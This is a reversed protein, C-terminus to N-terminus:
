QLTALLEKLKDVDMNEYFEGNVQVVPATGCHGLCEVEELSYLGDASIEGPKVGLNQKIYDVIEQKGLLYCSLTRCVCIHYKGKPQLNYMTYFTAVEYVKSAFTGIRDAVYAMAEASIWGEQEQVLWLSPLILSERTPYRTVLREFEADRQADFAFPKGTEILHSRDSM